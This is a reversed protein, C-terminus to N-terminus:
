SDKLRRMLRLWVREDDLGEEQICKGDKAIAVFLYKKGNVWYHNMGVISWEDLPKIRWPFKMIDSDKM